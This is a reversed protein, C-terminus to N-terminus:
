AAEEIRKKKWNWKYLLAAALVTFPVALVIGFSGALGQWGQLVSAYIAFPDANYLASAFFVLTICFLVNTCLVQWIAKFWSVRYLPNVRGLTQRPKATLVALASFLGCALLFLTAPLVRGVPRRRALLLLGNLFCLMLGGALFDAGHWALLRWGTAPVLVFRNLVYLGAIVAGPVAYRRM